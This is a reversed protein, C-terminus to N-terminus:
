SKWCTCADQLYLACMDGKLWGLKLWCVISTSVKMCGELWCVDLVQTYTWILISPQIRVM